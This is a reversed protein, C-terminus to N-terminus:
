SFSIEYLVREEVEVPAQKQDKPLGTKSTGGGGSADAKAENFARSEPNDSKNDIYVSEVVGIKEFSIDYIGDPAQHSKAGSLILTFPKKRCTDPRGEKKGTKLEKVDELTLSVNPGDMVTVAVTTGTLDKFKEITIKDLM